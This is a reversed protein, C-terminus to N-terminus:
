LRIVATPEVQRSVNALLGATLLALAVLLFVASYLWHRRAAPRDGIVIARHATMQIGCWTAATGMALCARLDKAGRASLAAVHASPRQPPSAGMGPGPAPGVATGAKAPGDPFRPERRYLSVHRTGSSDLSGRGRDNGAAPIRSRHLCLPRRQARRVGRRS